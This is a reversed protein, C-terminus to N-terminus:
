DTQSRDVSAEDIKEYEIRMSGLLKSVTNYNSMQLLTSYLSENVTKIKDLAERKDRKKLRTNKLLWSIKTVEGLWLVILGLEMESLVPHIKDPNYRPGKYAINPVCSTDVIWGDEKL